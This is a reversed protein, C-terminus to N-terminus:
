FFIPNIVVVEKTTPFIIPAPINKNGAVNASYPLMLKNPHNNVAEPAKIKALIKLLKLLIITLLLPPGYVYELSPKPFKMPNKTAQPYQIEIQTLLAPNAIAIIPPSLTKKGDNFELGKNDKNKPNDKIQINVQIFELPIFSDPLICTTVVTKFNNGNTKTIIIPANKKLKSLKGLNLKVPSLLKAVKGTTAASVNYAKKPMSDAVIGASFILFGSFITGLAVM